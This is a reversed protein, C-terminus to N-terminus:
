SVSTNVVFDPRSEDTSVWRLSLGSIFLLSIEPPKVTTLREVGSKM